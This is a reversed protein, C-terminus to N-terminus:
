QIAFLLRNLRKYYGIHSFLPYVCVCVCVCVCIVSESPQIGSILAVNYTFFFLFSILSLFWSTFVEIQLVFLEHTHFACHPSRAIFMYYKQPSVAYSCKKRTIKKFHISIDFCWTEYFYSFLTSPWNYRLILCVFEYFFSWIKKTVLFSSPYPLQIFAILICLSETILYIFVLSTSYLM